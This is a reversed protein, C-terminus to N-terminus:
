SCNETAKEGAEELQGLQPRQYQLACGLELHEVGKTEKVGCARREIRLRTM